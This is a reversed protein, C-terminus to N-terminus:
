PLNPAVTALTPMLMKAGIDLAAQYVTERNTLQAIAQPMNTSSVQAVDQSLQVAAQELSSTAAKVRQMRAGLDSQQASVFAIASAVAKADKVVGTTNASQLDSELQALIGPTTAGNPSLIGSTTGGGVPGQFLGYADVGGPVTVGSGIEFGVATAPATLNWTGSAQNWPAQGSTGGFVYQSGYQANAIQEVQLVLQGVQSAQAQMDAQSLTGSSAAAAISATTQLVQSLQTLAQSANSMYASAAKANQTWQTNWAQAQSLNLDQAAAVPNDSPAQLANGTAVQQEGAMISTMLDNLNRLLLTQPMSQTVNM